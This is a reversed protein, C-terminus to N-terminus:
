NIGLTSTIAVPAVIANLFLQTNLPISVPSTGGTSGGSGGTSGGSGGTSGGSGGAAEGLPMTTTTTTTITKGQNDTTTTSMSVSSMGSCTSSGGCMPVAGASIQDMQRDSLRTAASANEASLSLTALCALLLAKM